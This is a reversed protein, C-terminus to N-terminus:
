GELDNIAKLRAEVKQENLTTWLLVLISLVFPSFLLPHTVCKALGIIPGGGVSVLYIAADLTHGMPGYTKYISKGDKGKRVWRLHQKMGLEAEIEHMRSLKYIYIQRNHNTYLMWVSMLVAVLASGVILLLAGNGIKPDM